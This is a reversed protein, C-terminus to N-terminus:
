RRAGSEAARLEISEPTQTARVAFSQELLRSFSDINTARFKGTLRLAAIQPDGIVIKRRNYRNFEAVADALATEHFAVYGSRWSLLSEADSLSAAQVVVDSGHAHVISGAPLVRSTAANAFRVTGETVVLRFDDGERRVSFKTGVATVRGVGAAVIFPRGPDKAVEFFAEGQTVDVRRERFGLRVRLATASSLTVNSGDKLPVAALGGVATSYSEVRLFHSSFYVGGGIIVAFLCAALAVWLAPGARRRKVDGAGPVSKEHAEPV